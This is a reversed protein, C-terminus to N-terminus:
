MSLKPALERVMYRHAIGAEMFEEGEVRFGHRQYFAVVYSQAHLRACRHGAKEALNMLYVLLASAVGRRRWPRLVAMRGIHGDPLLRGTGIAEGQQSIAIAHVSRADDDDWEVELPVGQEVVFVAERVARLAAHDLRWDATRIRYSANM